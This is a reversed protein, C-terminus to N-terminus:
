YVQALPTNSDLDDEEVIDVEATVDAALLNEMTALLKALVQKFESTSVAATTKHRPPKDSKKASPSAVVNDPVPVAARKTM